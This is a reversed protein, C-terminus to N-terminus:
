SRVLKSITAPHWSAAGQATPVGQANLERAITSFSEGAAHQAKILERVEDPLTRPRGLVVGAASREALAAKTRESIMAKELQAFVALIQIMATGMPTNPDVPADLVVLCWGERQAKQMISLFDLLSRAVRDVKSAVLAAAEGRKLRALANELEPRKKRGAGAVETIWEIDRDRWGNAKAAAFIATRQAQLGAGSDAQKSTSVRLYGLVIM